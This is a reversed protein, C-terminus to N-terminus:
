RLGAGATAVGGGGSALRLAARVTDGIFAEDIPAGTIFARLFLPAILHEIVADVDADPSAQGEAAAARILDGAAQFRHRWFDERAALVEPDDSEGLTAIVLARGIPSTVYGAVSTLLAVLDRELDGTTRTAILAESRDKAAALILSAKTPWNRYITTKNVGAAAAVSDIALSQCGNSVLQALTADFVARRVRASRGGPRKAVTARAAGSGTAPM